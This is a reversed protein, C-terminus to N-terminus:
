SHRESERSSQLVKNTFRHREKKNNNNNNVPADGKAVEKGVWSVLGQDYLQRETERSLVRGDGTAVERGGLVVLVLGEFRCLSLARLGALDVAAAAGEWRAGSSGGISTTWVAVAVAGAAEAESAGLSRRSSM